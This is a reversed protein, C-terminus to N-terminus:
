KFIFRFFLGDPIFRLLRTLQHQIFPFNVVKKHRNGLVISVIIGAAAAYTTGLFSDKGASMRGPHVTIFEVGAAHYQIRLNEFAKSLAAKSSSYGIRGKHNERLVSLSSVAVFIGSKRELCTPLFEEVWGLTGFLNLDFNERLKTLDLREDDADDAAGGANFIFVDPIFGRNKMELATRKIDDSKGVDCRTYISSDTPPAGDPGAGRAVGWVIAGRSSLEQTIALGLGKTAGTVLVKTKGNVVM